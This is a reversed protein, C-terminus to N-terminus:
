EKSCRTIPPLFKVESSHSHSLNLIREVINRTMGAFAPIWNEFTILYRTEDLYPNGRERSHCVFTDDLGCQVVM